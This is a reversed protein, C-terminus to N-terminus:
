LRFLDICLPRQITYLKGVDEDFDDEEDDYQEKDYGNLFDPMLVSSFTLHSLLYEIIDSVTM